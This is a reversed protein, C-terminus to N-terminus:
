GRMRVDKRVYIYHTRVVPIWFKFNIVRFRNLVDVTLYRYCAYYHM